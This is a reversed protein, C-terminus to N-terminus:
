SSPAVRLLWRITELKKQDKGRKLHKWLYVHRKFDINSWPMWDPYVMRSVKHPRVRQTRWVSIPRDMVTYRRHLSLWRWRACKDTNFAKQFARSTKVLNTLDSPKCYSYIHACADTCALLNNLARAQAENDHRKRWYRDCEYCFWTKANSPFDNPRLQYWLHTGPHPGEFQINSIM